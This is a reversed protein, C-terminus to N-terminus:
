RLAFSCFIIAYFIVRCLHFIAVNLIILLIVSKYNFELSLTYNKVSKKLDMDTLISYLKRKILRTRNEQDDEDPRDNINASSM